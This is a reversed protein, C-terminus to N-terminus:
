IRLTRCARESGCPIRIFIDYHGVTRYNCCSGYLLPPANRILVSGDNGFKQNINNDFCRPVQFRSDGNAYRGDVRLLM